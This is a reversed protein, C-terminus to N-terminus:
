KLFVGFFELVNIYEMVLFYFIVFYTISINLFLFPNMVCGIVTATTVNRKPINTIYRIALLVM